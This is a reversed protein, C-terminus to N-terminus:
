LNINLLKCITRFTNICKCQGKFLTDYKFIGTAVRIELYPYLNYKTMPLLSVVCIGKKHYYSLDHYQSYTWGEDELQKPTIYPVRIKGDRLLLHIRNFSVSNGPENLSPSAQVSHWKIDNVMKRTAQGYLEFEYGPHIDDLSPTFYEIKNNEM